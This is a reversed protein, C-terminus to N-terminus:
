FYTVHKLRAPGNDPRYTMMMMM